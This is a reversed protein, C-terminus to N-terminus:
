KKTALAEELYQIYRETPPDEAARAIGSAERKATYNILRMLWWVSTVKLLVPDLQHYQEYQEKFAQYLALDPALEGNAGRVTWYRMKVLDLEPVDVIANDWDIVRYSNDNVIINRPSFDNHTLVARAAHYNQSLAYGIFDEAKSLLIPSYTALREKAADLAAVLNKGIKDRYRLACEALGIESLKEYFNEFQIGHIVALIKAADTYHERDATDILMVGEAWDYVATPNAVSSKRWDYYVEHPLFSTSGSVLGYQASIIKRIASGRTSDKAHELQPSFLTVVCAEKIVGPEYAYLEPHERVKIGYCEAGFRASFIRNFAGGGHDVVQDPNGFGFNKFAESINFTQTAAPQSM